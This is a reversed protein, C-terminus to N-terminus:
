NVFYYPKYLLFHVFNHVISIYKDTLYDICGNYHINKTYVEVNGTGFREIINNAINKYLHSVNYRNFSKVDYRSQMNDGYLYDCIKALHIYDDWDLNSIDKQLIEQLYSIESSNPLNISNSCVIIKNTVINKGKIILGKRRMSEYERVTTSYYEGISYNKLIELYSNTLAIQVGLNSMIGWFRADIGEPPPFLSDLLSDERKAKLIYNNSRLFTDINFDKSIESIKFPHLEPETISSNQIKLHNTPNYNNVFRPDIGRPLIFNSSGIYFIKKRARTHLVFILSEAESYPIMYFSDPYNSIGYIFVYDFEKGKISQITSFLIADPHYSGESRTYCPIGLDKFVTCIKQAIVSTKNEKTLSPGIIAINNYSVLPRLSTKIYQGIIRIGSDEYGDTLNILEIPIQSPITKINPHIELKNHINSRRESLNNALELMM